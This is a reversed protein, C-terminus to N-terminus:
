GGNFVDSTFWNGIAFVVGGLVLFLFAIPILGAFGVNLQRKVNGDGSRAFSKTYIFIAILVIVGLALGMILPMSLWSPFQPTVNM